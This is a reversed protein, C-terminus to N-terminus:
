PLRVDLSCADMRLMGPCSLKVTADAGSWTYSDVERMASDPQAPDYNGDMVGVAAREQGRVPKGMLAEFVPRLSAADGTIDDQYRVIKRGRLAGSGTGDATGFAQKPKRFFIILFQGDDEIRPEDKSRFFDMRGRPWACFTVEHVRKPDLLLGLSCPPAALERGLEIGTKLRLAELLAEGTPLVPPRPQADGPRAAAPQGTMPDLGAARATARGASWQKFAAEFQPQTRAGAQLVSKVEPAALIGTQALGSVAQWQRLVFAWDRCGAPGAFKFHRSAWRGLLAVARRGEADERALGAPASVLDVNAPCNVLTQGASAPPPPLFDGPQPMPAPQYAPKECPASGGSTGPCGAYAGSCWGLLAAGAFGVVAPRM